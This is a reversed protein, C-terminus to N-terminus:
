RGLSVMELEANVFHAPAQEAMMAAPWVPLGASASAMFDSTVSPPPPVAPRMAVVPELRLERTPGTWSWNIFTAALFGCGVVGAAVVLFSGISPGRYLAARADAEKVRSLRANLRSTFDASPEITPLNRVVLLGRRVATNYRACRECTALHERMAGLDSAPLSNDVFALHRDRFARCDM